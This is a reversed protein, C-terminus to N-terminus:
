EDNYKSFYKVKMLLPIVLFTLAYNLISNYIQGKFILRYALYGFYGVGSGFTNSVYDIVPKSFGMGLNYFYFGTSNVGVTCIVFSLISILALKLFIAGKFKLKLGYYITGSIFACLATSLGVWFMYVYGMSNLLYGLTDGLFCVTMGCLPGILIGMVISLFITLSFQVDSFKIELFTNSVVCLATMVGLYAIRKTASANLILPSFMVKKLNKFM